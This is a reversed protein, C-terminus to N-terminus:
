GRLEPRQCRGHPAHPAHWEDHPDDELRQGVAGLLRRLGLRQDTPLQRRVLPCEIRRGPLPRYQQLRLLRDSRVTDPWGRELELARHGLDRQGPSSRGQLNVRGDYGLIQAGASRRDCRARPERSARGGDRGVGYAVLPITSDALYFGTVGSSPKSERSRALASGPVSPFHGRRAGLHRANPLRGLFYGVRGCRCSGWFRYGSRQGSEM